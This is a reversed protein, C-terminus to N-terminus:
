GQTGTHAKLVAASLNNVFATIDDIGSGIKTFGDTRVPAGLEDLEVKIASLRASLRGLSSVYKEVDASSVDGYRRDNASPKQNSM